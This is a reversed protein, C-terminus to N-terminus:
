EIVHVEVSISAFETSLFALQLNKQIIWCGGSSGTGGGGSSSLSANNVNINDHTPM